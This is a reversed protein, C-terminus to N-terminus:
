PGTSVYCTPVFCDIPIWSCLYSFMVAASNYIFVCTLLPSAVDLGVFM